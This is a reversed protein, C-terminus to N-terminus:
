GGLAMTRTATGKEVMPPAGPTHWSRISLDYSGVMKALAAHAAGPTGAQQYAQMMAAEEPSMKPPADQALVPLAAVLSLPLLASAPPRPLPDATPHPADRVVARRLIPSGYRMGDDHHGSRREDARGRTREDARAVAATHAAVSCASGVAALLIAPRSQAGQETEGCPAM